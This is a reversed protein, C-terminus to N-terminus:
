RWCRASRGTTWAGNLGEVLGGPDPAVFRVPVVLEDELWDAPKGDLFYGDDNLVVSPVLVADAAVGALGAALDAGTLLGAVTVTPGWFRSEVVRVELGAGALAPSEAARRLVPGFLAGTALVVRRGSLPSADLENLEDLFRRVLGVGNEIQPFGDYRDAPPPERGALLYWEDSPVVVPVGVERSFRERWPAVQELLAPAEDPRWVRLTPDIQFRTLGLPVVAISRVAPVLPALDNLTRELHDGDNYGPALVVQAHITVEAEVLADLIPRVDRGTPGRPRLLRDRVAPDTAHVSVYLPSLGLERM